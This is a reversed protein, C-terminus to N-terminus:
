MCQMLFMSDLAPDKVIGDVNIMLQNGCVADVALGSENPFVDLALVAKNANLFPRAFDVCDGNEGCGELLQWDFANTLTGVSADILTDGDKMGVSLQRLHAQNAVEHYWAVADEIMVPFGSSFTSVDNHDPAVGDCGIQKAVDLRKWILPAFTAVSAARIDLFRLNTNGAVAWGIVSGDAPMTPDNPPSAAFGPFKPADRDTLSVAGTDVRCIVIGPPTRAHIDAIKGALAGKELTIPTHDGYDLLMPSPVLALANLVYVKHPMSVDFPAALQIDWDHADGPQPQWWPPPPPPGSDVPPLAPAKDCAVLGLLACVALRM